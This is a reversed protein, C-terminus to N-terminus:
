ISGVFPLADSSSKTPISPGPSHNGLIADLLRSLNPEWGYGREMVGRASIELSRDPSQLLRIVAAAFGAASDALVLDRGPQAEIGELAQSTLVVAKGCAMAELVKNQVGRALRLPAVAVSAHRVFPRIDDVRGTVRIGPQTGLRLVESSPNSGVIYFVANPVASRVQPLIEASFWTVADVNPWYDMAGTFVIGLEDAAYPSGCVYDPSFFELDVGNNYYSVKGAVEPALRRFLAAEADSVFFSRDSLNALHREYRFLRDAERSYVWRKIGTLSEKYQRWKDSDVDVFDVIKRVDHAREVYQGMAASYVFIAEINRSGLTKKVWKSMRTDFYYPLTLPRDSLFGSLSRVTAAPKSLGTFFAEECFDKAGEARPWDEPDDVFAGLYVRFHQALYRLAHFSRIKDGKNPPFPIRHALFLLQKV